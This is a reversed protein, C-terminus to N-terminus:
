EVAAAAPEVEGSDAPQPKKRPPRRRKPAPKEAGDDLDLGPQVEIPQAPAVETVGNEPAAAPQVKPQEVGDQEQQGSQEPQGNQNGAADTQQDDQPGRGRGRRRRSNGQSNQNGDGDNQNSRSENMVRYYHDAFQLFYESQTRDGAQLAERAQNKYKEVLQKPNGRVRQETRNGPGGSKGGQRSSPRGRQKHRTNQAQKM